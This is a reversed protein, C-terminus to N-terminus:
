YGNGIFRFNSKRSVVYMPSAEGTIKGKNIPHAAVPSSIKEFIDYYEDIASSEDKGVMRAYTPDNFFRIEKLALISKNNLKAEPSIPLVSPHNLLYSYVSTTGCKMSGAVVFWPACTERGPPVWCNEEKYFTGKSLAQQRVEEVSLRDVRTSQKGVTQCACLAILGLFILVLATHTAKRM